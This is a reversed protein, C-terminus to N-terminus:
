IKMLKAAISAMKSNKVLNRYGDFKNWVVYDQFFAQGGDDPNYTRERWSPNKINEEIANQVDEVFESFAGKLLVAGNTSFHKIHESTIEM